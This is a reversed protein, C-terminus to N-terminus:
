SGIVQLAAWLSTAGDPRRMWELQVTRLAEAPPVGNALLAHLRPFFESSTQDDIPWLTAVVSPAGAALFGHAVSMVGESGRREGRATNCGALVVVSTHALSLQAIEPVRVRREGHPGRVVISAPDLGSDDGIAHGAFHIADAAPAMKLLSEYTDARMARRYVSAVQNAERDVHALTGLDASADPSGIVLATRPVGAAERRQEAAIFQAASAALVVAYRELLHQGHEDILAAFPLTAITADAVFAISKAGGLQSEIPQILERHLAAALRRANANDNNSLATSLDSVQKALADRDCATATARVGNADATFIVLRSPLALYEVITTQSPVRSPDFRPSAGYVDLLSRARERETYAFAMAVDDHQLSLDVAEEFLESSAHFVGWRQEGAPLSPRRSELEQIGRELEAAAGADNGRQRLARARQLFLLPLNMRDGKSSQYAIAENVFAVAEAPNSALTARVANEDSQLLAAYAPDEVRSILAHAEAVDSRAEASERLEQRVAARLLLTEAALVNNHIRRAAEIELTLFSTAPRWKHQAMADQGITGLAKLLPVDNRRGVGQLAIMRHQWAKEPDGIQDYVAALVGNANAAYDTEGLLDFIAVSEDLARIAEGWDAQSAHCAGLQRLILARAAKLAPPAKTLLLELQQQSEARHGSEYDTNAAFFHALLGIPSGARDFAAAARRFIPGAENPRHNKFTQQATRFDIHAAALSAATADDAVEIARVASELMRDGNLQALTAGLERALELHREAGAHDSSIKAAAWRGLIETEGWMRSEQPYHAALSRAAAGGDSTLYNYNRELIDRFSREVDVRQRHQRGESLWDPDTDTNLYRNWAERAADRIGLREITLARNFLAEPLNPDLALARDSASLADALLEPADYSVATSYSAAALDSWMRADRSSEAVSTLSELAERSRNVALRAIGTAHRAEPTSDDRGAAVLAGAASQLALDLAQKDHGRTGSLFRTWKFGGTIRAEILRPSTSAAAVLSAISPRDSERVHVAILGAAAMVGAAILAWSGNLAFSRRDDIVSVAYTGAM